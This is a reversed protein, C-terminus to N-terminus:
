RDQEVEAIIREYLGSEGFHPARHLAERLLAELKGIRNVCDSLAARPVLESEPAGELVASALLRIRRLAEVDSIAADAGDGYALARIEKLAAVYKEENSM